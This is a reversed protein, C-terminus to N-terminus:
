PYASNCKCTPTNTNNDFSEWDGSWQKTKEKTETTHGALVRTNSPGNMEEELHTVIGSFHAVPGHHNTKDSGAKSSDEKHSGAKSSGVKGDVERATEVIERGTDM